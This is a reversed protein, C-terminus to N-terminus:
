IRVKGGPVIRLGEGAEVEFNITNGTHLEADRIKRVELMKVLKAGVRDARLSLLADCVVQLRDLTKEDFAYTRAALMITRKSDCLGKCFRFLDMIATVRSSAALNTIHDVIIIQYQSPISRIYSVLLAILRRGDEFSGPNESAAPEEIPYIGLQGARFYGSVKMGLSGMRTILANPSNESTFYAM